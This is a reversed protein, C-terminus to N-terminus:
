NRASGTPLQLTPTSTSEPRAEAYIEEARDLAWLAEMEEDSYDPTPPLPIHNSM